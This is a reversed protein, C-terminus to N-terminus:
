SAITDETLIASVSLGDSTITGSGSVRKYRTPTLLHTESGSATLDQRGTAGGAIANAATDYLQLTSAGTDNIYWTGPEPGIDASGGNRSYVIDEGDEFNHASDTTITETSGNVGSTTAFSANNSSRRIRFYVDTDATYQFLGYEMMGNEDTTDNVIESDDSDKYVAVRAGPIANGSSDTVTFTIPATEVITISGGWPNSAKSAVLNSTGVNILTLAGGGRWQVQLSTDEDFVQNTLTLTLNTEGTPADIYFVLSADDHTTDDYAEMATQMAAPSASSITFDPGVGLEFMTDAIETNTVEKDHWSCWHSYRTGIATGIQLVTGGINMQGYTGTQQNWGFCLDGNHLLFTAQGWPNGSDRSQRVGDIFLALENDYGSGEIKLMVHYTRNPKLPRNSFAQVDAADSLANALLINGFGIVLCMDNVNAGEEMVISPTQHYRDLRCWFAKYQINHAANYDDNESRPNDYNENPSTFQNAATLHFAHTDGRCLLPTSTSFGPSGNSTTNADYHYAWDGTDTYHNQLTWLHQPTNTIALIEDEYSDQPLPGINVAYGNSLQGDNTTVWIWGDGNSLGGQVFDFQISTNAWSDITQTVKTGTAYVANDSVEVKGVGQSDLFGTGTIVNDAEATDLQEDEMDTINPNGVTFSPTNTYSSLAKDAEEVLRLQITDGGTVDASRLQLCYELEVEQNPTTTFDLASGGALGNVEDVGANTTIFTGPGSMQETTNEGDTLKTSASSRMVSSSANVDNWGGSNLNYQLQFEVDADALDNLEEILFRVRFNEDHIQNWNTNVAAKWTGDTEDTGDDNRGRFSDQDYSPAEVTLTPTNTYSGFPYGPSKVLRFQITDGDGTDENRLQLCYEMEVEQNVTTTFDLATGGALGNVDDQGANTSIFTGPGSLQETTNGGDTLKTSASARAVSSSATVNNWGGSNHNYQLQFAVDSDEVDDLEEILFRIRFNEDQAQDWDTNATAKWTGDTEDTGDDNRGRFSDQDYNGGSPVITWEPTVTYTNLATTDVLLRFQYTENLQAGLYTGDSPTIGEMAWEWEGYEDAGLDVTDAPNEDDQIRGGGFDSTSKTAPATLQYTTDAGSASIYTSDDLQFAKARHVTVPLSYEDSSNNVLIVYLSPGDSAMLSELSAHESTLATLDLNVVTDSWSQVANDLDVEADSAALTSEDALYVTGSGQSSEFNLGNVDLSNENLDLEDSADGYDSDVSTIGATTPQIGVTIAVWYRSTSLTYAGPDNSSAADEDTCTATWSSSSTSTNGGSIQNDPHSSPFSTFSDNRNAEAAIWLTDASGWSPTLTTPNPSSDTGTTASSKEIYGSAAYGTIRYSTHDSKCSSGTTVNVTSGESGSAVKYFTALLINTGNADTSGLQSWGSPVSVTGTYFGFFIILLDGASISAPLNVTHSTGASDNYGYNSTQVQPFAM